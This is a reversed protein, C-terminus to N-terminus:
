AAPKRRVKRMAMNQSRTVAELHAPNVCHRLHCKHHVHLGEPIPGNALECSYRHADVMDGHHRAFRGYGTMQNIGATWVWCRGLEPVHEPVPGRKNVKAWFRDEPTLSRPRKVSPDKLWKRYCPRCKDSKYIPKDAGGCASCIPLALQAPEPLTFEPVYGWFAGQDGRRINERPTVPELHGPRCCARNRCLHDLHLGQPIPGVEYQYAIRHTLQTGNGKGGYQGYGTETHIYGTWVWCPGLEPKSGPIPGTKNVQAWFRREYPDTTAGYQEQRRAHMECLGRRKPKRTCGDHDCETGQPEYRRTEYRPNGHLRWRGYHMACWGRGVVPKGCNEITCPDGRRVKVSPEPETAETM